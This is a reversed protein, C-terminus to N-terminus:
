LDWPRGIDLCNESLTMYSVDAGEDILLQLTDTIEYENRVSLKTKCIADFISPSLVYVGANALNSPPKQPKEIIRLVKNDHLELVGFESPNDVRRATLVVDSSQKIVNKIPM